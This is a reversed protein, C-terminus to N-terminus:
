VAPIGYGHIRADGIPYQRERCRDGSNGEITHVINGEVRVVIGVHDVTGDAEYNNDWDFFILEGPQPVYDRDQWLGRAKFWGSGTTCGAFRPIAGSEIYGCQAACWSVFIACWDVHQDFGYWRWFMEGGINGLQAAAVSVLDSATGMVSSAPLFFAPSVATGEPRYVLYLGLNASITGLREGQEVKQGVGVSVSTLQGYETRAGDSSEVIVTGSGASTVTGPLCCLVETSAGALTNLTVGDRLRLAGDAARYWGSRDAIYWTGDFPTGLRELAAWLGMERVASMMEATDESVAGAEYLVSSATRVTLTVIRQRHPEEPTESPEPEAALTAPTGEDESEPPILEESWQYMRSHIGELEEQVTQGFVGNISEDLASREYASDLYLLIWDTDSQIQISEAPTEMGNVLYVTEVGDSSLALLTQELEADMRTIYQYTRNLGAANPNASKFSFISVIFLIFLIPLLLLLAILGMKVAQVGVFLKTKRSLFDTAKEAAQNVVNRATTTAKKGQQLRTMIQRHKRAARFQAGAGIVTPGQGSGPMAAGELDSIIGAASGEKGGVSRGGATGPKGISKGLGRSYRSGYAAGPQYEGVEGDPGFGDESFAPGYGGGAATGSRAGGQGAPRGSTFLEAGDEDTYLPDDYPITAADDEMLDDPDSVFDDAGSKAKSGAAKEEKAGYARGPVYEDDGFSFAAPDGEPPEEVTGYRSATKHVDEDIEMPRYRMAQYSNPDRKM